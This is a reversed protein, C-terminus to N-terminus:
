VYWSNGLNKNIDLRILEKFGNQKFHSSPFSSDLKTEAISLIDFKDGVMQSFNEFKNRISNINMYGIIVMKPHKLRLTNMEEFCDASAEM